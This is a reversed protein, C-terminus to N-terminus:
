RPFLLPTPLCRFPTPHFSVALLFGTAITVPDSTIISFSISLRSSCVSRISSPTPSCSDYCASFPFNFPCYPRVWKPMFNYTYLLSRFLACLFFLNARLASFSVSSFCFYISLSSRSSSLVTSRIFDLSITHIFQDMLHLSPRTFASPLAPLRESSTTGLFSYLRASCLPKWSVM